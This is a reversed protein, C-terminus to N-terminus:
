CSEETLVIITSNLLCVKNKRSVMLSPELGSCWGLWTRYLYSTRNGTMFCMFCWTLNNKKGISRTVGISTVHTVKGLSWQKWTGIFDMVTNAHLSRNRANLSRVQGKFATYAHLSRNHASNANLPWHGWKVKCYCVLFYMPIFRLVIMSVLVDMFSIVDACLKEQTYEEVELCFCFCFCFSLFFLVYPRLPLM